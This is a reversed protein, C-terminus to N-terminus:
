FRAATRVPFRRRAQQTRGEHPGPATRDRLYVAYLAEQEHGSRRTRRKRSRAAAEPPGCTEERRPIATLWGSGRTRSGPECGVSCSKPRYAISRVLTLAALGTAPLGTGSRKKNAAQPTEAPLSHGLRGFKPVSHLFQVH